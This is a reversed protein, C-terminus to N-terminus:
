EAAEDPVDVWISLHRYATETSPEAPPEGKYVYYILRLDEGAMEPTVTHERTWTEGPALQPSLRTVEERQRIRTTTEGTQVEQLEAIVTYDTTTGEENELQLTLEAGGEDITEPYGSAVLEGEGDTTLLAASTFSEATNPAVMAYGLGAAAVLVVAAVVANVAATRDDAGFVGADLSRSWRDSPLRLRKGPPERLRYVAAPVLGLASVLSTATVITLTDYGLGVVSLALGLLPLLVVSLGFSLALRERWGIRRSDSTASRTPTGVGDPLKARGEEGPFLAAILVYGPVFFLLPFGILSRPVVAGAPLLILALTSVLLYGAILVIDRPVSGRRPVYKTMISPVYQEWWRENASPRSM